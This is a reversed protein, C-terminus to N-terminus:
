EEEPRGAAHPFHASLSAPCASEAGARGAGRPRLAIFSTKCAYFRPQM